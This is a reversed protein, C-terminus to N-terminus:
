GRRKILHFPFPARSFVFLCVFTLSALLCFSFHFISKQNVIKMENKEKQKSAHRKTEKQQDKEKEKKERVKELM